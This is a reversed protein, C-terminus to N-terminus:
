TKEALLIYGLTIRESPDVIRALYPFHRHLTLLTGSIISLPIAIAVFGIVRHITPSLNLKKVLRNIYMICLRATVDCAVSLAGGRAHIREIKFGCRELLHRLGHPTYRYYDHPEEHTWYFFPITVIVKGGKKLAAGIERLCVQPEPVHELVETLLVTDLSAPKFPLALATGHVDALSKEHLTWPTDLGIHKKAKFLEQYPKSGCGVDLLRNCDLGALEELGSKLLKSSLVSAPNM